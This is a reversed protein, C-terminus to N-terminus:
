PPTHVSEAQQHEPSQAKSSIRRQQFPCAGDILGVAAATGTILRVAAM